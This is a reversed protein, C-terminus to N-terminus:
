KTFNKIIRKNMIILIVISCLILSYNIIINNKCIINALLIVTINLCQHMIIPAKLTKYKEYLYIFMFSVGFAYISDIFNFHFLAFILCTLIISKMTPNFEKLKNYIYGRFLLEELIPGLIGSTIVQVILPLSSITILEYKDIVNDLNFLTINYILSISVGLLIPEYINKINFKNKNKHKKFLKYFIPFFIVFGILAILLTKSDIFSELKIQYDKTKIIELLENNTLDNYNSYNFYSVFVYQIVFQGILFIIPWIMVKLINKFYIKNTM